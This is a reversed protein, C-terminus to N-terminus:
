HAPTFGCLWLILCALFMALAICALTFLVKAPDFM